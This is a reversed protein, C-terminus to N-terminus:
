TKKSNGFKISLYDRWNITVTDWAGTGLGSAKLLNVALGLIIFGLLYFMFNIKNVRIYTCISSKV